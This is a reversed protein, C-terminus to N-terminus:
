PASPPDATTRVPPILEPPCVGIAERLEAPIPSSKMGRKENRTVHVVALEGRAIDRNGSRFLFVYGLSTRGIHSVYLHIEVLEEFRLPSWYECTAKVRPLGFEEEFADTSLNWGLSRYFSHETAEMYRFFTSFHVIGAMDTEVFEVRRTEQFQYQPNM